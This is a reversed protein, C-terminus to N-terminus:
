SEKELYRETFQEDDLGVGVELKGVEITTSHGTQINKMELHFAQWKHEAPDIERVDRASFQKVPAGATDWYEGKIAVHNDTRIWMKRKGYGSNTAAEPNKPTAEIVHAKVGDVDETGAYTYTWDDVRHGIIDGYSFDTGVFSDKKNNAVLRRVKRLAPLYIWIDDDGDAHEIMLTGTGKVDAPSLFRILRRQDVGNPLLKSVSTTQRVRKAGSESVLTMTIEGRSDRVKGVMFNKRVIDTPDPDAAFALTSHFASGVVVLSWWVAVTM